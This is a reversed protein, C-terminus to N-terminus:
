GSRRSWGQTGSRSGARWASRSRTPRSSVREARLRCSCMSGTPEARRSTPSLELPELEERILHAVRIALAFGGDPPDLDFLVFDPRHPKDVRSYWANMDVCNMQVMWLVAEPSNVLPFDVLRSGGERPYTRYTRTPIWSPMGKPAQKQFYTEGAAGYPSRKMTFPRNRLHPVLVPAIARYYEFVDEKTIGEDPFLVREPSSLRVSRPAM